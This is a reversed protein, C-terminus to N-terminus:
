IRIGRRKSRRKEREIPLGTMAATGAALVALALPSATWDSWPDGESTEDLAVASEDQTRLELNWVVGTAPVTTTPAQGQEETPAPSAPQQLLNFLWNSWEAQQEDGRHPTLVQDRLQELAEGAGTVFSDHSVPEAALPINDIGGGGLAAEQLSALLQEGLTELTQRDNSLEPSTLREALAAQFPDFTGFNLPLVIQQPADGSLETFLTVGLALAGATEGVGIPSLESRLDLTLVVPVSDGANTLYIDFLGEGLELVALASAETLGIDTLLM